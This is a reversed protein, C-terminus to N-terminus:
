DDPTASEVPEAKPVPGPTKSALLWTGIFAGGWVIAAVGWLVGVSSATDPFLISALGFYAALIGTFSAPLWGGVPQLSTLLGVGIVVFGFAATLAYHGADIHEQHVEAHNGSEGHDHGTPEIAGTQLGVSTASFALLPVAAVIVLLLLVRNTRSLSIWSVLGRGAPHLLTAMLTLGGMIGIMMFPKWFGTLAFALILGAWPILAMLQGGIHKRPSRLQAVMGIIAPWILIAFSLVHIRHAPDFEEHLGLGNPFWGAVADVLLRWGGTGLFLGLFALVFITQGIRRYGVDGVRESITAM